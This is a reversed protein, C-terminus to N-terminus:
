LSFIEAGNNMQYQVTHTKSPSASPTTATPANTPPNIRRPQIRQQSQDKWSVLKTVPIPSPGVTANPETPPQMTTPTTANAFIDALKHLAQRSSDTLTPIPSAGPQSLLAKILDQAAATAAEAASAGPMTFYSPLWSLTDVIRESTTEHIWVRYCRYYHNPAPGLYWRNVAHPAWTGRVEPKEHILVKTGPPAVPTRNFDFAGRIQAYASVRSPNMTSSRLLNLTILAQPVLKDRLHLPMDPDTSCLGAIFHNKFTRIAREAANRRHLHPPALQFDIDQETMFQQLTASAENDLRQLKPKLGAQILMSHAKTYADVISKTTRSPMPEAHIYNSDYYYLVLMYSNGALSAVLFRGLQDTFIQGKTEHIAAFIWHTRQGPVDLGGM